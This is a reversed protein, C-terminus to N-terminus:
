LSRHRSFGRRKCHGSTRVSDYCLLVCASLMFLSTLGLCPPTGVPGLVVGSIDGAECGNAYLCVCKGAYVCVRICKGVCVFVCVRM